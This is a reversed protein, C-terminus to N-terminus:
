RGHRRRRRRGWPASGRRCGCPAEPIKLHKELSACPRWPLDSLDPLEGLHVCERTSLLRELMAEISRVTAPHDFDHPHVAVRLLALSRQWYALFPLGVISILKRLPTRTAWTLVRSHLVRRRDLDFLQTQNETIGISRQLLLSCLVPPYLWAPAVFATPREGVCNEFIESGRRLRKLAESTALQLFEGEGATMSARKFRNIWFTRRSIAQARSQKDELHTYGHLIWSVEFPRKEACFDVFEQHQDARIGRHFEPVLLYSIKTVGRQALIAEARRIRALHIPAVDHLSVHLRGKQPHALTM